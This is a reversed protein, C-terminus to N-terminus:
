CHFVQLTVCRDSACTPGARIGERRRVALAEAGPFSPAMCHAERISPAPVWTAPFTLDPQVEAADAVPLADISCSECCEAQISPELPPATSEDDDAHMCCTTMVRQMPVCWLYTKGLVTSAVLFAALLSLVLSGRLLARCQARWVTGKRELRGATM